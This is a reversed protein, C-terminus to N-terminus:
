AAGAAASGRGAVVLDGAALTGKIPTVQVMGKAALGPTVTVTRTTGRERVQV